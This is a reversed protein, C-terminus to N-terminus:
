CEYQINKTGGYLNSHPPTIPLMAPEHGTATPELGVGLGTQHTLLEAASRRGSFDYTSPEIGEEGM